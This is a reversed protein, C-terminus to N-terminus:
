YTLHNATKFPKGYYANELQRLVLNKMRRIIQHNHDFHFAKLYSYWWLQKHRKTSNTDMYCKIRTPDYGFWDILECAINFAFAGMEDRDGFYTQEQRNKTNEVTSQYGPIPKFNRARFQRMHIMEHLMIDAFRMAMKQFRYQTIKLTKDDKHFHLNLEISKKGNADYDSYYMGGMYVYGCKNDIGIFKVVKIPLIAKLNQSIIKTIQTPTLSKGVISKNFSYFYSYLTARDTQSWNFYAM